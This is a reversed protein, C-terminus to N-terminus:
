ARPSGHSMGPPPHEDHGDAGQPQQRGGGTAAVVAVLRRALDVLAELPLDLALAAAGTAPVAVVAGALAGVVMSSHNVRHSVSRAATTLSILSLPQPSDASPLVTVPGSPKM